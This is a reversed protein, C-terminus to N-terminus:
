SFQRMEVGEGTRCHCTLLTCRAISVTTTNRPLLSFLYFCMCVVAGCCESFNPLDRYCCTSDALFRATDMKRKESPATENVAFALSHKAYTFQHMRALIGAGAVPPHQGAGPGPLSGHLSLCLPDHYCNGRRLGQGAGSAGKWARTLVSLSATLVTLWIVQYIVHYTHWAFMYILLVLTFDAVYGTMYGYIQTIYCPNYCIYIIYCMIHNYEAIKNCLILVSLM